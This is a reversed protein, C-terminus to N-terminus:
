VGDRWSQEAEIEEGMRTEVNSKGRTNEIHQGKEKSNGGEDDWIM